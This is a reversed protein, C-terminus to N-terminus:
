GQQRPAPLTITFRSGVGKESWAAIRGDMRELTRHAIPLGLGNGALPRAFTPDEQAFPEFLTRLFAPTMGIGSDEVEIIAHDRAPRVRVTAGGEETFKLANRVVHSLARRLGDAHALAAVGEAGEFRLELGLDRARAGYSEVVEAALASVDVAECKLPEMENELHVFELTTDLAELLYQGNRHISSAFERAEQPGEESLIEAVGLIGTLPTRVDHSLKTLYSSKMKNLREARLRADILAKDHALRLTIDRTIQAYGLLGGQEDRLATVVVDAWFESGDKRVQLAETRYPRQLGPARLREGLDRRAAAGAPFLDVAARGVVETEEFGYLRRAGRNWSVVRGVPDLLVIAYEEVTDVLLRFREETARHARQWILQETVDTVLVLRAPRGQYTIAQSAVNVHLTSGDARLHRFPGGRYPEPEARAMEQLLAPVDAPPRLDTLRLSLFEAHSYGYERLAHENANLIRLTEIEYIFMPAPHRLFVADITAGGRRQELEGSALAGLDALRARQTESLTRPRVDIVCLTGLGFGEPSRLPVAAYFRVGPEGAVQPNARFREDQAVDDVVVLDQGGISHTCFSHSRPIAVAEAGHAALTWQRGEDIFNVMAVPAECVAAALRAIRQFSEEAPADLVRYQHLIALRESEHEAHTDARPPPVASRLSPAFM